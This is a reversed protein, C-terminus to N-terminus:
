QGFCCRLLSVVIRARAVSVEGDFNYLAFISATLLFLAPVSDSM